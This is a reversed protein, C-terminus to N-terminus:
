DEPFIIYLLDQINYWADDLQVEPGYMSPRIPAYTGSGVDGIREVSGFRNIRYRSLIDQSDISELMRYMGMELNTLERGPPLALIKFDEGFYEDSNEVMVDSVMSYPLEIRVFRDNVRIRKEGDRDEIISHNKMESPKM